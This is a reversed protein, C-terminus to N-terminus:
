FLRNLNKVWAYHYNAGQECYLLTVHKVDPGRLPFLCSKKEGKKPPKEECGIVTVSIKPNLKEFKSIQDITVSFNIGLFNLEEKLPQYYFIREAHHTAPHLAAVFSWKFCEQDENKINIVAKSTSLQKKKIQLSGINLFVFVYNFISRHQLFTTLLYHNVESNHTDNKESTSSLLSSSIVQM